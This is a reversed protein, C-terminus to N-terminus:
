KKHHMPMPPNSSPNSSPASTVMPNRYGGGCGFLEWVALVLLCLSAKRFSGSSTARLSTASIGTKM